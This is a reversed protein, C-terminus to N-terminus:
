LLPQQAPALYSCLAKFVVEPRKAEIPEAFRYFLGPRAGNLKIGSFSGCAVSIDQCPFGGRRVEAQPIDSPEVESIDHIQADDPWHMDLVKNCYNNIEYIYSIEFGTNEFGLDFGGIGAFFSNTHLSHNPEM